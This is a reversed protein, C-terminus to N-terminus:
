DIYNLKLVIDYEDSVKKDFGSKKLGPVWLIKGCSDVLIPWLTRNKAPIKHDIMINKVKKSGNTGLLQIRDGNKRNRIYLPMCIEKTNLRIIDNSVEHLNNIQMIEFKDWLKVYQDFPVFFDEHDVICAFYLEQYSKVCRIGKPLHVEGNPNKTYILDNIQNIHRTTIYQINENLQNTVFMEIMQKKVFTDYNFLINLNLRNNEVVADYYHKMQNEIFESAESIMTHFKSFSEVLNPNEKKLAPVINNRLRNRFYSDSQNSSDEFYLIHNDNAYKYIDEKSTDLLPRILTLNGYTRIKSVGASGKLTTGRILRMLITEIQDDGHQGLFVKNLENESAYISLENLRKERAENQFNGESSIDLHVGKFDYGHKICLKKVAEYEDDSEQRKGHHFHAVHINSPKNTYKSLLHLLVMSDVGGSVGVIFKEDRNLFKSLDYLVEFM